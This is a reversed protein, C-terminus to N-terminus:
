MRRFRRDLTRALPKSPEVPSPEIQQEITQEITQPPKGNMQEIQAMHRLRKELLEAFSKETVMATVALKPHSYPLLEIAARMRQSLPQEADAVIQELFVRPDRQGPQFPVEKAERPRPENAVNAFAPLEM